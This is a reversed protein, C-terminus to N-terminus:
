RCVVSGRRAAAREEALAGGASSTRSRPSRRAWVGLASARERPGALPALGCSRQGSTMAAGATGGAGSSGTTGSAGANGAVGGTGAAGTAGGASGAAGGTSTADPTGVPGADTIAGGAGGAAADGRADAASGDRAADTGGDTAMAILAAYVTDAIRQAGKANPHVQDGASGYLSPDLTHGGFATFM